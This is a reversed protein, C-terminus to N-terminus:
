RLACREDGRGAVQVVVDTHRECKQRKLFVFLAADCLHPHIMRALDLDERVDGTRIGANDRVDAQGVDLKMSPDAMAQRYKAEKDAESYVVVTKVGLERLMGPILPESFLSGFQIGNDLAVHRLGLFRQDRNRGTDTEPREAFPM